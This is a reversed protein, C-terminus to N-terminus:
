FSPKVMTSVQEFVDIVCVSVGNAQCVVTWLTGKVLVVSQVVFNELMRCYKPEKGKGQKGMQNRYKRREELDEM